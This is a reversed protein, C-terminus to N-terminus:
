ASERRRRARVLLSAIGTAFLTMSAPEPVATPAAATQFRTVLGLSDTSGSLSSVDSSFVRSSFDGEAFQADFVTTTGGGFNRVDLLLNGLSPDYLFPTSLVISIDFAKPGGAPGTFTSSLNLAGSFVTTNDAGVNTAFISNLADPAAASTSLDIQVNSLISSFAAGNIDPRFEIATILLPESFEDAAYVQQYRMSSLAFPAINFPAGNNTNGETGALSAPVISSAYVDPATAAFLLAFAMKPVRLLGM